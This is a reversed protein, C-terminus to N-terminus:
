VVRSIINAYCEGLELQSIQVNLLGYESLVPELGKLDKKSNVM